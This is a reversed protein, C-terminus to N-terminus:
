RMASIPRQSPTKGLVLAMSEIAAFGAMASAQCRSLHWAGVVALALAAWGLAKRPAPWRWGRAAATSPARPVQPKVVTAEDPRVGGEPPELGLDAEFALDTEGVTLIEGGYLRQEGEVSVGDIKLGNCSGADTVRAEGSGLVLTAHLRSAMPDRVRAACHEGRGVLIAEARLPARKGCDRGNLWVLAPVPAPRDEAEPAEVRLEHGGFCLSEGPRVLRRQGPSLPFKGVRADIRKATAIVGSLDGEIELAAPPLDALRLGDNEDGGITWLGAPLRHESREGAQMSLLVLKLM